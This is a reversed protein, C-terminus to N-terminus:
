MLNNLYDCSKSNIEYDLPLTYSNNTGTYIDGITCILMQYYKGKYITYSNDKSVFAIETLPNIDIEVTNTKNKVDNLYGIYDYIIGDKTINM